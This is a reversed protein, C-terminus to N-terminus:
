GLKRSIKVAVIDHSLNQTKLPTFHNKIEHKIGICVGGSRSNERLSNYCKYGPIKVSAKTEQLCFIDAQAIITKFTKDTFKSGLIKDSSDHINWSIIRLRGLDNTLSPYTTNKDM